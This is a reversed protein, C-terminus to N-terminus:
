VLSKLIYNNDYPQTIIIIQILTSRSGGAWENVRYPIFQIRLRERLRITDTEKGGNKRYQQEAASVIVDEKTEEAM